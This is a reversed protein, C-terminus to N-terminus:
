CRTSNNASRQRVGKQMARLHEFNYTDEGLSWAMVGGLRATDVIDRFKRQILSPTDWTWFLNEEMDVYYQGGLNQDVKGNKRARSWSDTIQPGSCTGYGGQCDGLCYEDTDGCYGDANCCSGNPCELRNTLGCIGNTSVQLNTPPPVMNQPEFTVVGSKRNDSGDQNEMVVTPCGIPHRECDAYPQTTFWKAYFAFGLNLKEPPAGIELYAHISDLSNAVASHHMTKNSRRNMLDYSMVNIMDVSEWIEPGTELTYAIMDERKGPTAISLTKNNGIEKRLAQLLLPYNQVESLKEENCISRYDGGNGGPYEWDIDVGDFGASVLMTAVNKAYRERSSETKAAESFGSTDGWGGIAILVKTDRPFRNRMTSVPEFPKFPEPVDSNFLTSNAFAMIAHSIGQTRNKGPLGVTHWQDIYTVLRLSAVCQTVVLSLAGYKLMM